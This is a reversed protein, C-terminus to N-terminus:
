QSFLPLGEIGLDVRYVRGKLGETIYLQDFNPGGFCCNTTHPADVKIELDIEGDPNVRRVVGARFIAAYLNGHVDFCMGDPGTIEAISEVRVNAFTRLNSISGDPNIDGVKIDGPYSDAVYLRTGDENVNVGNPYRLGELVKTVEGDPDLRYVPMPVADDVPNQPTTFYLAGSPHFTLDNPTGEFPEGECTTAVTYVSGDPTVRAIRRDAWDAVYCDGNWHFTSGNPGALEAFLEVEGDDGVRYMKGDKTDGFYFRGAPDVSPAEAFTYGDAVIDIRGSFVETV